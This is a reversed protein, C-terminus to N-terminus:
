HIKRIRTHAYSAEVMKVLSDLNSGRVSMVSSCFLIIHTVTMVSLVASINEFTVRDKYQSFKVWVLKDAVRVELGAAATPGASIDSDPAGDVNMQTEALLPEHSADITSVPGWEELTLGSADENVRNLWKKIVLARRM